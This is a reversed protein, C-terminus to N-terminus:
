RTRPILEDVLTMMEAASQSFKCPKATFLSNSDANAPPKNWPNSPDPIPLSLTPIKLQDLTQTVPTNM